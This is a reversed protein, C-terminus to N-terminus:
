AAEEEAIRMAMLIANVVLMEGRALAASAALISRGRPSDPLHHRVFGTVAHLAFPTM